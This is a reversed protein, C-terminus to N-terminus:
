NDVVAGSEGIELLTKDTGDAVGPDPKRFVGHSHETGDPKGCGMVEEYFRSGPFADTLEGGGDGANRRCPEILLYLFEEEESRGSRSETEQLLAPEKGGKEGAEAPPDISVAM